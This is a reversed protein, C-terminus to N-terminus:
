KPLLDHIVCNRGANKAAYLHKDAAEIFEEPKNHQDGGDWWTVGLSITIKLELDDYEFVKKEVESRVREALRITSDLSAGRLMFVFEEGGYRAFVDYGRAVEEILEAMHKLIYDGAPHGWTDNVQKFHDIDFLVLSLGVNNRQNYEFEKELVENFYRKNYIHTLGDKVAMNRLMLHYETDDQDQFSFKFVVDGLRVKDGEKMETASAVPDKNLFSGNTSGLDSLLYSGARDVIMAHRRSISIDSIILDADDNRGIITVDSKLEYVQGIFDGKIMIMCPRKVNGQDDDKPATTRFETKDSMGLPNKGFVLCLIVDAVAAELAILAGDNETVGNEKSFFGSPM